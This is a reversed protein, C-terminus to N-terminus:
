WLRPLTFEAYPYLNPGHQGNTRGVPKPCFSSGERVGRIDPQFVHPGDLDGMGLTPDRLPPHPPLDPIVPDAVDMTAQSMNLTALLRVDHPDVDGSAPLDVLDVVTM